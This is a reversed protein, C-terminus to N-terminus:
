EALYGLLEDFDTPPKGRKLMKTFEKYADHKSGYSRLTGDDNFWSYIIIKKGSHFRFFLRYQEFFKARRWSRFNPGMTNGLLYAKSMPDAPIKDFVLQNVAFLLKADLHSPNGGGLREREKETSVILATYRELFHRDAALRWGGAQGLWGM